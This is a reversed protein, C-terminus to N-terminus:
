KGELVADAKEIAREFEDAGCDCPGIERQQLCLMAHEYYVVRNSAGHRPVNERLDRLADRLRDREAAIRHIARLDDGVSKGLWRKLEERAEDRERTLRKVEQAMLRAAEEPHLDRIDSM